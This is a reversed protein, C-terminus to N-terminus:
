VTSLQQQQSESAVQLAQLRELIDNFADHQHPSPPTLTTQTSPRSQITTPTLKNHYWNICCATHNASSVM